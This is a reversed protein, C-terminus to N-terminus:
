SRFPGTRNTSLKHIDNAHRLSIVFPYNKSRMRSKLIIKSQILKTKLKSLYFKIFCNNSIGFNSGHQVSHIM